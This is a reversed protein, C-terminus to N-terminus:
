KHEYGNEYIDRCEVRILKILPNLAKKIALNPIARNLCYVRNSFCTM